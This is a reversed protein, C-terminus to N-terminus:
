VISKVNGKCGGLDRVVEREQEVFVVVGLSVDLSVSLSESPDTVKGGLVFHGGPLGFIFRCRELFSVDSLPGM